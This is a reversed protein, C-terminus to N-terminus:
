NACWGGDVLLCVGTVYSAADSALFVSPGVMEAIDGIRRLPTRAIIAERAENMITESNPNMQHNTYGPNIANVRIGHPGLEEALARVLADIGGKAACYPTLKAFAAVSANSSTFIIAGGSRQEIFQKGAAQACLFASKLNGDIVTAFQDATYDTVPGTIDIGANAHMIDLRSYRNVTVEILRDVDQLDTMDVSLGIAHGGKARIEEATREAGDSSRACGVVTAGAAAYGLALERGIGRSSGTVIAIKGTLDFRNASM